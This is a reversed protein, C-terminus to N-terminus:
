LPKEHTGLTCLIEGIMASIPGKMATKGVVTYARWHCFGNGDEDSHMLILFCQICALCELIQPIILMDNCVKCILVQLSPHRYISDKQFHNVQQGCATCSVIGHLGDELLFSHVNNVCLCVHLFIYIKTLMEWCEFQFNFGEYDKPFHCKQYM